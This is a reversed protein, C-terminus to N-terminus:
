ISYLPCQIQLRIIFFLLKDDFIAKNKLTNEKMIQVSKCANSCKKLIQKCYDVRADKQAKILNFKETCIDSPVQSCETNGLSLVHITGRTSNIQKLIRLAFLTCKMVSSPGRATFEFNCKINVCYFCFFLKKKLYNKEWIRPLFKKVTLLTKARQQDSSVHYLFACILSEILIPM